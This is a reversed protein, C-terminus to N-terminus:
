FKFHAEVEITRSGLVTNARGFNTDPIHNDVDALNLKNFLNYANGRLEFRASEGLGKMSPLGFAKTLAMDVGSYRPGTFANREVGPVQPLATPMPAVDTSWSPGSFVTPETFYSKGGKPYHAAATKFSDVSTSGSAGGLYKAPRLNSNGGNNSSGGYVADGAIGAYIPNYPFGSHLNLIGSLTWGGVVKEPWSHQGHFLVPSWLGYLKLMHRSDYDSRGFAYGPLFEYDPNAYPHSGDDTSKSWRYQADASFQNAFQRRAELLLANFASNGSNEYWDIGNVLPNFAMRGAIVDPALKNNLNTQITLHHGVSGQYGVTGIWQHGLDYQGELSYHYVYSTPLDEPLATVSTPIGNTPLNAANFTTVLHPNPPLGGAQYINSSAGYLIQSGTLNSGNALFPPNNRTNTTIAQELNDYSVGIGGRVVLRYNMRSPSWAFGLQPGFNFKQANVQNGGLVIRLDTLTNAGTGLRVNPQNGKKEYMGGFYEWRLGANVTLNPQLKWDDQAFFAYLNQRDDKRFMSPQGTRPDATVSETQPADNMFDWLNNFFYTPESDWTPIDMYALKTFQGGFKLNHTGHVKTLVDKYNMTWQDFVSGISPGFGNMVDTSISSFTPSYNSAFIKADPLGLPSQPNDALENWKWGAMDARAENLLSASFTHNWLASTSYNKANHHFLNSARIAGNYNTNNVPVYYLSAAFLDNGSAQYDVRGNYQQNINQTPSVTAVYM